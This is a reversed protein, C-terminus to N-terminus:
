KSASLSPKRKVAVTLPDGSLVTVEPLKVPCAGDALKFLLLTLLLTLPAYAEPVADGTSGETKLPMEGTVSVGVPWLPLPAVSLKLPAVTLLPGSIDRRVWSEIMKTALTIGSLLWSFEGSAQPYRRRQEEMIHQQLTLLPKIKM